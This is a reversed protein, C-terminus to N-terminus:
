LLGRPRAEVQTRECRRSLRRLDLELVASDRSGAADQLIVEGTVLPVDIDERQLLLPCIAAAVCVQAATKDRPAEWPWEVWRGTAAREYAAIIIELVARGDERTEIPQDVPRGAWTQPWVSLVWQDDPWTAM